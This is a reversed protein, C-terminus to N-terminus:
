CGPEMQEADSKHYGLWKLVVSMKHVKRILLTSSISHQTKMMVETVWLSVSVKNM